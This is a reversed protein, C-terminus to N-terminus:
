FLIATIIFIWVLLIPWYILKPILNDKFALVKMPTDQLLLVANVTVMLITIYSILYFYEMYVITNVALEDRLQVHMILLIFFLASCAAIVTSVNFGTIALSSEQRSITLVLAYLMLLVVALPFLHGIFPNLISRSLEINFYLEPSKDHSTFHINGFNSNYKNVRIDFFARSLNWESLVFDREVGPLTSPNLSDFSKFDPILTINNTFDKHWLRIWLLQKDFPYVSYDFTERLTTEFYWGKVIEDGEEREYAETIATEIAEPFIIGHEIVEEYHKPYRQWIYGSIAINTANLFEISQIFLGTPVFFPPKKSENLSTVSYDNQFQEVIARSSLILSNNQVPYPAYYENIWIAMIGLLLLLSSFFAHRLLQAVSLQRKAIAIWTYIMLGLAVANIIWNILDSKYIVHVDDDSEFLHKKGIEVNMVSLVHWGTEGIPYKNFWASGGTLENTGLKGSSFEAVYAPSIAQNLDSIVKKSGKLGHYIIQNFENVVIAYGNNGVDHNEVQQRVWELGIDLFVIGAVKDTEAATHLPLVYKLTYQQYAADFFPALWGRKGNSAQLYWNNNKNNESNYGANGIYDYYLDVRDMRYKSDDQRIFPAFLRFQPGAQYLDFAVGLAYFDVHNLASKKLTAEITEQNLSIEHLNAALEDAAFTLTTLKDNISNAIKQTTLAAQQQSLQLTARYKQVMNYTSSIFICLFIVTCIGLISKIWSALAWKAREPLELPNVEKM